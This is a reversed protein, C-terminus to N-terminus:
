VTLYLRPQNKYVILCPLSYWLYFFSFSPLWYKEVYYYIIYTIVPLFEQVYFYTYTFM